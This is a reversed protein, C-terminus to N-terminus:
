LSFSGSSLPSVLLAGCSSSTATSVLACSADRPPIVHQQKTKTKKIIEKNQWHQESIVHSMLVFIYCMLADDHFLSLMVSLVGSEIPCYM